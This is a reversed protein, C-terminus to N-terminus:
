RITFKGFVTGIPYDKIANKIQVGLSRNVSRDLASMNSIDDIGGLQLDIVHDIDFGKQISDRGYHKKFISSGSTTREVKTKITYANSLNNVKNQAALKQADTWGNLREKWLM